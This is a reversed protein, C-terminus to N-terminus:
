FYLNQPSIERDLLFLILNHSLDWSNSGGSNASKTLVLLITWFYKGLCVSISLINFIICLFTNFLEWRGIVTFSICAPYKHLGYRLSKYKYRVCFLIGLEQLFKNTPVSPEIYLSFGNLFNGKYIHM